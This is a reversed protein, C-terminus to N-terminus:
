RPFGNIMISTAPAGGTEIRELASVMASVKAEVGRSSGEEDVLMAREREKDKCMSSHPAASAKNSSSSTTHSLPVTFSEDLANTNTPPTIRHTTIVGRGIPTPLLFSNEDSAPQLIKEGEKLGTQVNWWALGDRNCSVLCPTDHHTWAIQMHGGSAPYPQSLLADSAGSDRPISSTSLRRTDWVHFSDKNCAALLNPESPCWSVNTCVGGIDYSQVTLSPTRIDFIRIDGHDCSTAMMNPNGPSWEM